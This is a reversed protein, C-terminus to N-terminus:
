QPQRPDIGRKNIENLVYRSDHELARLVEDRAANYKKQKYLCISLDYRLVASNSFLELAKRLAQEQKEFDGAKAYLIAASHYAEPIMRNVRNGLDMIYDGGRSPEGSIDYYNTLAQISRRDTPDLLLGKRLLEVGEEGRGIKQYLRGLALTGQTDEMIASRNEEALRLAQANKGQLEMTQVLGSVAPAFGEDEDLALQYNLTAEPYRESVRFFDGQYAYANPILGEYWSVVALLRLSPQHAPCINLASLLDTKVSELLKNGGLSGLSSEEFSTLDMREVAVLERIDDAKNRARAHFVEAYECANLDREAMDALHKVGVSKMALVVTVATAIVIVWIPLLKKM